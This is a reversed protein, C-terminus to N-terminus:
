MSFYIMVSGMAVGFLVGIGILIENVKWRIKEVKPEEEIKGLYMNFDHFARLDNVEVVLGITKKIEASLHLLALQSSLFAINDNRISQKRLFDELALDLDQSNMRDNEPCNKEIVQKIVTEVKLLESLLEKPNYYEQSM